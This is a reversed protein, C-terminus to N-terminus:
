MVADNWTRWVLRGNSNGNFCQFEKADGVIAAWMEGHLSVHLCQTVQM